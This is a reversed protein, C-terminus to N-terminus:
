DSHLLKLLKETAEKLILIDFFALPDNNHGEQEQRLHRKSAGM